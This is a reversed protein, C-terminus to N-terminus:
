GMYLIANIIAAAVNSGGKRGESIIYPVGANKLLQKSEVVNVFGVPVGVVLLPKARGESILECLRILATPANGIAYVANRSDEAARDMCLSARTVDRAAADSAIAADDMYCVAEGGYRGLVRKNIGSWVMKTDSVVNSGARLADMGSEVAGASISLIDAFEFDATTHIVRKIINDHMPPFRRDGLMQSIIEFSRREIDSPSVREIGELM